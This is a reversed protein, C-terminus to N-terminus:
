DEITVGSNRIINTYDVIKDTKSSIYSNAAKITSRKISKYLRPHQIVDKVKEYEVKAEKIGFGVSKIRLGRKAYISKCINQCTFFAAQWIGDADNNILADQFNQENNEKDIYKQNM